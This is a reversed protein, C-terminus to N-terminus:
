GLLTSFKSQVVHYFNRVSLIKLRNYKWVSSKDSILSTQFKKCTIYGKSLSITHSRILWCYTLTLVCTKLADRVQSQSSLSTSSSTEGLLHKLPKPEAASIPTPNSAEVQSPPIYWRKREYKQIM